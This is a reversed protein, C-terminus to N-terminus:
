DGFLVLNLLFSTIPQVKVRLGMTNVFSEILIQHQPFKRDGKLKSQLALFGM